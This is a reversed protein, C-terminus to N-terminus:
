ENEGDSRQEKTAARDGAEFAYKALNNISDVQASAFELADAYGQLYAQLRQNEHNSLEDGLLIGNTASSIHIQRQGIQEKAKEIENRQYTIQEELPDPIDNPDDNTM